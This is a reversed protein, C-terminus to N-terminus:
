YDYIIEAIDDLAIEKATLRLNRYSVISNEFKDLIGYFVRGDHCVINIKKGLLLPLNTQITAATNFRSLRKTM